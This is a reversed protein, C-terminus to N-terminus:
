GDKHFRGKNSLYIMELTEGTEVANMVFREDIM